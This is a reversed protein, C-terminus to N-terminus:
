RRRAHNRRKSDRRSGENALYFLAFMLLIFAALALGNLGQLPALLRFMFDDM